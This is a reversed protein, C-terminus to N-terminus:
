LYKRMEKHTMKMHVPRKGPKNIGGVPRSSYVHKKFLLSVDESYHLSMKKIFEETNMPKFSEKQILQNLFSTLGGNGQFKYNLYYMFSKGVSYSDPHTYRRYPSNAALNSYMKMETRSGSGEDSWSTIAEDIWGSNGDAPIFGGRAFYSHTLEHNIAWTDTMTAGFYEMGGNGAIFVTLKPHLFPGYKSELVELSSIIKNKVATLGTAKSAAYLTVVLDRGDLSRFNFILEPYRGKPATHFYLSSSTFTDPFEVKFKNNDFKSVIGNTFIKQSTMTKFDLNFTIKFQDYEFSAPLYTELFGRDGLDTFWFASSVGDNLFLIEESIPAQIVLTHIGPKVSKLAIRFWTDGDPSSIVKSTIAEDDLAMSIPNEKLDFAPLGEEFSEFTITSIATAIKSKPDYSINYVGSKFDVYIVRGDNTSFSPPAHKISAQLSLSIMPLLILWLAKFNM